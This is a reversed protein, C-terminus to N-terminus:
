EQRVALDLSGLSATIERHDWQDPLDRQHIDKLAPNELRELPELHALFDQQGLLIPAELEKLEQSDTVEPRAQIEM